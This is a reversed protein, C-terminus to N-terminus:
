EYCLHSIFRTKEKMPIFINLEHICRVDINACAIYSADTHVLNIHTQIWGFEVNLLESMKVQHVLLSTFLHKCKCSNLCPLLFLCNNFNLQTHPTHTPPPNRLRGVHVRAGWSADGHWRFRWWQWCKHWAHDSSESCWDISQWNAKDECAWLKLVDMRFEVCVKNVWYICLLVLCM